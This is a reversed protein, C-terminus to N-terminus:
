IDMPVSTILRLNIIYFFVCIMRIIPLPNAAKLPFIIFKMGGIGM